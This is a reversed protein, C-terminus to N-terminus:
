LTPKTFRDPPIDRLTSAKLHLWPLAGYKNKLQKGAEPLWTDLVLNGDTSYQEEPECPNGTTNLYALNPLSELYKQALFEFGEADIQNHSLDLWRLRKLVRSQAIWRLDNSTLSNNALSISRIAGFGSEFALRDWCGASASLDLHLIPASQFLERSKASFFYQASIEILEVFGRHFRYDGIYENDSGPWEPRWDTKNHKLLQKSAIVAEIRKPNEWEAQLRAAELQWRIFEARKPHQSQIAIAFKERYSDQDPNAVIDALLRPLDFAVVPEAPISVCELPDPGEPSLDPNKQNYNIPDVSSLVYRYFPYFTSTPHVDTGSTQIDKFLNVAYRPICPEFRISRTM